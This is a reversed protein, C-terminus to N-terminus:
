FFIFFYFVLHLASLTDLDQVIRSSSLYMNQDCFFLFLYFTNINSILMSICTSQWNIHIRRKMFWACPGIDMRVLFLYSVEVPLIQMIREQIGTSTLSLFTADKDSLLFLQRRLVKPWITLFCLYPQILDTSFQYLWM